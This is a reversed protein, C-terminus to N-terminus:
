RKKSLIHENGSPNVIRPQQKSLIYDLTSVVWYQIELKSRGELNQVEVAQM